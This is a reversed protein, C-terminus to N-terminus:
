QPKGIRSQRVEDNALGRMKGLIEQETQECRLREVPGTGHRASGKDGGGHKACENWRNILRNLEEDGITGPLHDIHEEVATPRCRADHEPCCPNLHSSTAVVRTLHTRLARLRMARSQAFGATPCPVAM